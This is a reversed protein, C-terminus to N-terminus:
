RFFSRTGRNRWPIDTRLQTRFKASLAPDAQRERFITRATDRLKGISYTMEPQFPCNLEIASADNMKRRERESKGPNSMLSRADAVDERLAELYRDDNRSM